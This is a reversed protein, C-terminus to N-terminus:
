EPISSFINRSPAVMRWFWYNLLLQPYNEVVQFMKKRSYFFNNVKRSELYDAKRLRDVLRMAVLAQRKKDLNEEAWEL